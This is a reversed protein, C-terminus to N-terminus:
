QYVTLGEQAITERLADAIPRWSGSRIIEALGPTFLAADVAEFGAERLMKATNGVEQIDELDELIVSTKLM